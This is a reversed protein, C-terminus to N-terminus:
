DQKEFNLRKEEIVIPRKVTKSRLFLLYEGLLSLFILQLSGFFGILSGIILLPLVDGLLACILAAVGGGISALLLLTGLLMMLRVPAKTYAAFSQMAADYLTAFNNSTKGARRKQQTYPVVTRGFGLEAVIGRLYPTPDDLDRLVDLFTRDYLGFGTFHEIQPTASMRRLTKYYCTRLFRMLPNERSKTKVACVVKSGKEWEAVLTPILEVPDQFDACLLIACDGTCRCLGYYPSRFQGFNQANFIARIRANQACLAELRERTKDTSCNDIFLLEYEYDSLGELEAIVAQSLPVVNDQENYTPVVVSIRRKAVTEM